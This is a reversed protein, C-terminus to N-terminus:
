IKVRGELLIFFHELCEEPRMLVEGKKVYSVRGFRAIDEHLEKQIVDLAYMTLAKERQFSPIVM